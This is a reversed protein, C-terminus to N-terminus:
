KEYEKSKYINENEWNIREEDSRWYNRYWKGCTKCKRDYWWNHKSLKILYFESWEHEHYGLLCKIKKWMIVIKDKM